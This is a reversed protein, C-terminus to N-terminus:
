MTRLRIVLHVVEPEQQIAIIIPLEKRQPCDQAVRHEAKHLCQSAAFLCHVPLKAICLYVVPSTRRYCIPHFDQSKPSVIDM